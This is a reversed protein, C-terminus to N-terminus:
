KILDTTSLYSQVSNADHILDLWIQSNSAPGIRVNCTIICVSRGVGGLGDIWFRTDRGLRDLYAQRTGDIRAGNAVHGVGLSPSLTGVDNTNFEYVGWVAM